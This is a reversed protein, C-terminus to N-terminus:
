NVRAIFNRSRFPEPLSAVAAEATELSDFQGVGVRYTTRGQPGTAERVLCRLNLSSIENCQEQASVLSPLSHIIISYVRGSIDLVEGNLGYSIAENTTTDQVLDTSENEVDTSNEEISPSTTATLGPLTTITQAVPPDSSEFLSSGPGTLYWYAGGAILVVVFIIGVWKLINPFSISYDKQDEELSVIRPGNEDQVPNEGDMLLQEIEDNSDHLVGEPKLEAEPKPDFFEDLVSDSKEAVVKPPETLEIEDVEDPNSVVEDGKEHDPEDASEDILGIGADLLQKEEPDVSDDISNPSSVSENESEETEEEHMLDDITSDSTSTHSDDIEGELDNLFAVPDVFQVEETEEDQIGFPDEEGDVDEDVIVVPKKITPRKTKEANAEISSATAGDVDVPLMGEYTYNIEAAFAPSVTFSLEDDSVSFTGFGQIVFTEGKSVAKQIDTVLKDLQSSVAAEESGLHESLLQILERKSLNM